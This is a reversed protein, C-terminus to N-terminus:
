LFLCEFLCGFRNVLFVDCIQNRDRYSFVKYMMSALDQVDDFTMCSLCFLCVTWWHLIGPEIFIYRRGDTTAFRIREIGM